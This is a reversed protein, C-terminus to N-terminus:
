AALPAVREVLAALFKGPEEFMPLHASREFWVLEKLPADLDALWQEAIHSSSVRDHRGLFLLVPVEIHKVGSFSIAALQPWMRPMTFSFGAGIAQGDALSHAPSLLFSHSHFNTDDRYAAFGGFSRVWKREVKTKELDLSHEQPYPSIANLESLADANDTRAAESLTWAYGERENKLFDIVQAVGVYAHILDPRKIAVALGIASGWSHGVIIVKQKEYRACLLEILEIADDCYREFKLTPGLAEPENLPFSLGAGRQDWQVVTFFDEWPRQYTWAIPLETSAPGGHVFLILPNAADTGRIAVIQRAGGLEFDVKLDVATPMSLRQMDGLLARGAAYPDNGSLATDGVAM